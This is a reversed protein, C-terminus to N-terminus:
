YIKGRHDGARWMIRIVTHEARTDKDYLINSDYFAYYAPKFVGTSLLYNGYPTLQFDIVQEKKNLFKAM